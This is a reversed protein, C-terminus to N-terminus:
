KVLFFEAEAEFEAKAAFEAQASFEDHYTEDEAEGNAQLIFTQL